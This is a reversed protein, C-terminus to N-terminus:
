DYSVDDPTNGSGVPVGSNHQNDTSWACSTSVASNAGSVAAMEEKSIVRSEAFMKNLITMKIEKKQPQPYQSVQGGWIVPAENLWCSLVLSCRESRAEQSMEPKM